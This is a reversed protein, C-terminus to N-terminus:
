QLAEYVLTQFEREIDYVAFPTIQTWLMGILEAEPDIWFFTNAAGAWRHVGTHDPEPSAADDVLVAFGLGFGYGPSLYTGVSIPIFSEPLHNTRMTEVTDTELIRVGDLEGGQLLMQAFRIYDSATSTLGGGGSLWVAPRTYPGDVPSDTLQLTGEPRAYNGTFRDLKDSSVHFATDDMGLPETIRTRVFEDFTQGSAVEVVRGLMDTSVSYNWREGPHALLPLDAVRVAFDELGQAEAFLGSENYLRDVASVGFFGYTLGSTHTLLHQITIPGDPAVRDGDAMLVTVDAFEPVFKSLPDDLAAKGEEVLVMVSVSTIPKTMSFIRFIDDPELTDNSAGLDRLGVADWHVVQGQRAVMTVVGALRGDDIYAQMAPRIRALGDASMGVDAPDATSLGAGHDLDAAAIPSASEATPEGAAPVDADQTSGCAVVVMSLAALAVRFSPRNM